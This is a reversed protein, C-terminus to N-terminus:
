KIIMEDKLFLECAKKVIENLICYDSKFADNIEKVLNLSRKDHVDVYLYTVGDYGFKFGYSNHEYDHVIIDGSIYKNEENKIRRFCFTLYQYKKEINKKFSLFNLQLSVHNHYKNWQCESTAYCTPVRGRGFICNYEKFDPVVIIFSKYYRKLIKTKLNNKLLFYKFDTEDTFFSKKM